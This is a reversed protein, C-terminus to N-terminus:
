QPTSVVELLYKPIDRRPYKERWADLIGPDKAVVIKLAVHRAETLGIEEYLDTRQDDTLRGEGVVAAEFDDFTDFKLTLKARPSADPQEALTKIIEWAREYYATWYPKLRETASLTEGDAIRKLNVDVQETYTLETFAKGFM